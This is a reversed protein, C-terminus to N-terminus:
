HNTSAQWCSTPDVSHASCLNIALTPWLRVLTVGSAIDWCICFRNGQVYGMCM